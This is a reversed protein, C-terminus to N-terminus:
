NYYNLLKQKYNNYLTIRKLRLLGKAHWWAVFQEFKLACIRIPMHHHYRGCIEACQGYYFGINDILFTHHTSRGPVCDLKIGLGPVFWSHIVDYSSTIVTINIHVPLVLTRKTRLLRKSLNVPILENKHKNNKISNFYNYKNFKNDTFNIINTFNMNYYNTNSQVTFKKLKKFKKQRFGWFNESQELKDAIYESFTITKFLINKNLTSNTHLLFINYKNLVGKVLRIPEHNFLERINKATDEVEDIVDFDNKSTNEQFLLCDNKYDSTNFEKNLKINLNLNYFNNVINDNFNINCNDILFVDSLVDFNVNNIFNNNNNNLVLNNIEYNSNLNFLNENSVIPNINALYLKLAENKWIFSDLSNNNSEWRDNYLSTKKWNNNGVNIYINKLKYDTDNSFKYSWYWQKGQIRVTISSSENQLEIMRLIFNSNLVISWCWTVPIIAVLFDGWKGHSRLSTNLNLQFRKTRFFVIRIVIIFYLAWIISFWFWWWYQWESLKLHIENKHSAFGFNFNQQISAELFINSWSM